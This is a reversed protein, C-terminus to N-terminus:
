LLQQCVEMLGLVKLHFSFQLDMQDMEVDLIAGICVTVHAVPFDFYYQFM